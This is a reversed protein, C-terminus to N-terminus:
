DEDFSGSPGGCVGGLSNVIPCVFVRVGQYFTPLMTILVGLIILIIGFQTQGKAAFAWVGAIALGLGLVKGLAGTLILVLLNYEASGAAGGDAAHVSFVMAGCLLLAVAALKLLATGNM